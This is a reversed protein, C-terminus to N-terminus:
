YGDFSKTGTIKCIYDKVPANKITLLSQFVAISCQQNPKGYHGNYRIGEVNFRGGKVM